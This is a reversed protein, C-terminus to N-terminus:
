SYRRTAYTIPVWLESLVENTLVTPPLWYGIGAIVAAPTGDAPQTSHAYAM